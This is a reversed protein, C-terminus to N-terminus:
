CLSSIKGELEKRLTNRLEEQDIVDAIPMLYGTSILSTCQQMTLGRSMLYYLQDDDVRGMSMAHSAQVDNEDILLENLKTSDMVYSDQDSQTDMDFLTIEQAKEWGNECITFSAMESSDYGCTDVIAQHLDFFTAGADIKIERM